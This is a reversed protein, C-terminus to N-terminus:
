APGINQQNIQKLTVAKIPVTEGPKSGRKIDPAANPQVYFAVQDDGKGAQAEMEEVTPLHHITMKEHDGTEVSYGATLPGSKNKLQERALKYLEDSLKGHPSSAQTPQVVTRSGSGGTSGKPKKEPAVPSKAATPDEHLSHAYPGAQTRLRELLKRSLLDSEQLLSARTTNSRSM